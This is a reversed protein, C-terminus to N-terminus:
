RLGRLIYNELSKYLRLYARRENKGSPKKRNKFFIQQVLNSKLKSKGDILLVLGEDEGQELPIADADNIDFEVSTAPTVSNYSNYFHVDRGKVVKNLTVPGYDRM